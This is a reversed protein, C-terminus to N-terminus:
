SNPQSGAATTLSQRREAHLFYAYAGITPLNIVVAIVNWIVIPRSGILLGYYVWLIQFTGMIATMRPNMGGSSHRMLMAILDAFAAFTTGFCALFGIIEPLDVDPKVLKRNDIVLQQCGTLPVLGLFLVALIAKDTFAIESSLSHGFITFM